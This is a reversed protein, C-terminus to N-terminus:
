AIPIPIGMRIRPVGTFFFLNFDPGSACYLDGNVETAGTSSVIAEYSLILGDTYPHTGGGTLFPSPFTGSFREKSIYPALVTCGTQTKDNYLAIGNGCNRVTRKQLTDSCLVSTTPRKLSSVNDYLAPIIDTITRTFSTMLNNNDTNANCAWYMSGRRGAFCPSIWSVFSNAVYNLNTGGSTVHIGRTDALFQQSLPYMYFESKYVALEDTTNGLPLAWSRVYCHRHLLQRLSKASEGGYVLNVKDDDCDVEGMTDSAVFDSQIVWQADAPPAIPGAVKFDPGARVFVLIEVPADAVPSTLENSVSVQLVGNNAGATRGISAYTTGFPVPNSLALSVNKLFAEAQMYPVSIEIDQNETIDYLRSINTVQTMPTVTHNEDSSPDYSIRIFGRHYKSCIVRFRFIVSGSWFQFMTLAHSLPTMIVDDIERASLQSPQVAITAIVDGPADATSWLFSYLFSERGIYTSLELEDTGDLGVTRSDITLENKPDLTLKPTPVGLESSAFGAFPLDKFPEVDKVVPLNTFGFWSAVEGIASAGMESARAFPGIIPLNSLAGAAAAIASATKSVTNKEFGDFRTYNSQMQVTPASLEVDSAWAYVRITVNSGTVSNANRLPTYSQIRLEGISGIDDTQNRAWNKPFFFPLTIEGGTSDTPYIFFHPRQSLQVGSAISINPHYDPMPNYAVIAAGYYFPSASITVRVHLNMRFLGYNEIKRKIAPESLFLSWPDIVSATTSNELWNISAIEVPRELYKGMELGSVQSTDFSSVDSSPMEVHVGPSSTDFKM